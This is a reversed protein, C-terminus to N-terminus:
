SLIGGARPLNLATSLPGEELLQSRMTEPDTVGYVKAIAILKEGFFGRLEEESRADDIAHQAKITAWAADLAREMIELDLPDFFQKPDRFSAM